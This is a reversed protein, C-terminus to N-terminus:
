KLISVQITSADVFECVYSRNRCFSQLLDNAHHYNRGKLQTEVYNLIELTLTIGISDGCISVNKVIDDM